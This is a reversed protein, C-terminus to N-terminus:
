CSCECESVIPYQVHIWSCSRFNSSGWCRWRLLTLNVSRHPKCYMGRPVSCSHRSACRGERIYRPWFRVGLDKWVPMVPCYTHAWLWRRVKQRTRRNIKLRQGYLKGRLNLERFERPMDGTLNVPSCKGHTPPGISMRTSDFQDGLKGKLNPLFLDEDSPEGDRDHDEKLGLVPLHDSPSPRVRLLYQTVGLRTTLSVLVLVLCTRM